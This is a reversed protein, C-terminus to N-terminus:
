RVKGGAGGLSGAMSTKLMSPPRQQVKDGTGGLPGVMSTELKRVELEPVVRPGDDVHKKANITPV